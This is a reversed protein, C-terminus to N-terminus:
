PGNPGYSAYCCRCGLLLSRLPHSAVPLFLPQFSGHSPSPFLCVFGPFATELSIFGGLHRGGDGGQTGLEMGQLGVPQGQEREEEM